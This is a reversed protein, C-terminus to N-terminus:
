SEIKFPVNIMSKVGKPFVILKKIRQTVKHKKTCSQSVATIRLAVFFVCLKVSYHQLKYQM